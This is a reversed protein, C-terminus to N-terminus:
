LALPDMCVTGLLAVPHGAPIGPLYAGDPHLHLVDDFAKMMLLTLGRKYIEFGIVTDVTVVSVNSNKELGYHLERLKGDVKAAMISDTDNIGALELLLKLDTNKDVSLTQEKDGTKLNITLKEM